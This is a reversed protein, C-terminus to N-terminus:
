ECWFQCIQGLLAFYWADTGQQLSSVFTGFLLGCSVFMIFFFAILWISEHQDYCCVFSFRMFFACIWFVFVCVCLFSLFFVSQFCIYWCMVIEHIWIWKGNPLYGCCSLDCLLFWLFISRSHSLNETAISRAAEHQAGHNRQSITRNRNRQESQNLWRVECEVCM